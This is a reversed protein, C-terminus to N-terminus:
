DPNCYTYNGRKYCTYAPPKYEYQQGSEDYYVMSRDPNCTTYNQNHDYCTYSPERQGYDKSMLGCGSALLLGFCFIAKIM